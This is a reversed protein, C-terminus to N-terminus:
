RGRDLHRRRRCEDHAHRQHADPRGAAHAGGIDACGSVTAPCAGPRCRSPTASSRSPKSRHGPLHDERQIFGGGNGGHGDCTSEARRDFRRDATFNLNDISWYGTYYTQGGPHPDTWRGIMLYIPYEPSPGPAPVQSTLGAEATRWQVVLGHQPTVFVGYYPTQPDSSGRVMVGSKQWEADYNVPGASTVQASVTGDGTLPQSVFHFFDYVDWIDPGGAAFTWTGNNFEQSGSQYGNGVDQCTYGQPCVGPPKTSVNSIGVNDWTSKNLARPNAQSGGIGALPHAGLNLAVPPFGNVESWTTGNTSTLLSYYTVAPSQTADTYRNIQFWAPLTLTGVPITVRQQILNTTRWEITASLNPTVVVGDLAFRHIHRADDVHGARHRRGNAISTLRGTITGDGSMPKYVYHFQDAIRNNGLLGDAALNIGEGGGSITWVGNVLTNDGIPSGAGVDTCTWGTPCAHAENQEVYTQTSPGIALKQYM